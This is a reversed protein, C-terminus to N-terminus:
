PACSAPLRRGHPRRPPGPPPDADDAPPDFYGSQIDTVLASVRLYRTVAFVVASPSCSVSTPLRRRRGVRRVNRACRRQRRLLLGPRFDGPSRVRPRAPDGSPAAPWAGVDALFGAGRARGGRRPAAPATPATPTTASVVAGDGRPASRHARPVRRRPHPHADHPYSGHRRLRLAIAVPSLRPRQRRSPSRCSTPM